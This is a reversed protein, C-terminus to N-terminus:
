GTSDRMSQPLDADERPADKAAPSPVKDNRQPEADRNGNKHAQNEAPREARTGLQGTRGARPPTSDTGTKEKAAQSEEVPMAEASARGEAASTRSAYRHTAM